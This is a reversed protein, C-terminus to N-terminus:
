VYDLLKELNSDNLLIVKCNNAAVRASTTFDANSVVVAFDQKYFDRATNIEQVAKNGVPKSYMKCQIAFSVGNKDALVDAGQDGSAKTVKANFGLNKLKLAIQKEYELPQTKKDPVDLDDCQQARLALFCGIVLTTLYDPRKTAKKKELYYNTHEIEWQKEEYKKYYSYVFDNKILNCNHEQTIIPKRASKLLINKTKTDQTITISPTYFKDYSYLTNHDFIDREKQEKEWQKIPDYNYSQPLFDDHKIYERNPTLYKKNSDYLDQIVDIVINNVFYSLENDFKNTIRVKGYDDIYCNQELKKNLTFFHKKVCNYVIKIIKQQYRYERQSTM